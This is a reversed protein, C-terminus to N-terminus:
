LSPADEAELPYQMGQSHNAKEKESTLVQEGLMERVERKEEKRKWM